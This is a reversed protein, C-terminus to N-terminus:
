PGKTIHTLKVLLEAQGPTFAAAFQESFPSVPETLQELGARAAVAVIASLLARQSASLVLDDLKQALTDIDEQSVEIVDGGPTLRRLM